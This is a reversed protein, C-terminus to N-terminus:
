YVLIDVVMKNWRTSFEDQRILLMYHGFEDSLPLSDMSHVIYINDNILVEKASLEITYSDISKVLVTNHETLTIDALEILKSLPVGTYIHETAPGVKRQYVATFDESM